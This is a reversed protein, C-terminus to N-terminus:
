RAIMLRLPDMGDVSLLYIGELLTRVDLLDAAESVRRTQLLRGQVNFILLEKGIFDDPLHVWDVAPNPCLGIDEVNPEVIIPDDVQINFFDDNDVIGITDGGIVAGLIYSNSCEPGSGIGFYRLGLESDLTYNSPYGTPIFATICEGSITDPLYFMSTSGFSEAQIVYYGNMDIRHKCIMALAGGSVSNSQVAVLEDPASEMPSIGSATIDIIWERTSDQSYSIAGYPGVYKKCSHGTFELRGLLETRQDIHFRERGSTSHLNFTSNYGFEVVDGPQYRYFQGISPVLQGLDPGQIGVLEYRPGDHLHWMTIGHDKSWSVTDNLATTLTLMSDMTGWVSEQVLSTVLATTGNTPDFIWSEGVLAPSRVILQETEGFLWQGSSVVSVHQLFQPLDVRVNCGDACGICRAAVKNLEYRFSDPGLTDVDMVRIQNSITDTGDNSYNYRYAPNLLAWNQAQATLCLLLAGLLSGIRM